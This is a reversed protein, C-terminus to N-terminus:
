VFAISTMCTVTTNTQPNEFEKLRDAGVVINISRAGRGSAGKLVDFITKAGPDDVINEAHGPFM